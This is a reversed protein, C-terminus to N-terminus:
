GWPLTIWGAVLAILAMILGGFLLGGM